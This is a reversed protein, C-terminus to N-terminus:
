EHVDIAHRFHHLPPAAEAKGSEDHDAILAAADAKTVSLCALNRFGNALRGFSGFAAHEAYRQFVSAGQVVFGHAMVAGPLHNHPRRILAGANDRTPRHARHKLTEANAIDHGLAKS